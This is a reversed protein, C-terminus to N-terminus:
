KAFSKSNGKSAARRAMVALIIGTTILLLSIWQAVNLPGWRLREDGRFFEIVFRGTPYAMLYVATVLGRPMRRRFMVLLVLYLGANLLAEYAQTPHRYQDYLWIAWPLRTPKGYCCGNLLCGIRGLAHALPMGSLTFDAADLFRLRRKRAFIVLAVAGGFVGGYFILGGHDVRIIELPEALYYPLNALIYALRAGVLGGLVLWVALDTGLSRPWGRQPALLSWHLSAALFAAAAMVGYWYIAKSGIYFCIPHM